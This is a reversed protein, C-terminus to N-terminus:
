KRRMTGERRPFEKTKLISLCSAMSSPESELGERYFDRSSQVSCGGPAGAGARTPLHQPRLTSLGRPRMRQGERGEGRRREEGQWDGRPGSVADEEDSM